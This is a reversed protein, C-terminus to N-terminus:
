GTRRRRTSARACCSSSGASWNTARSSSGGRRATCPRDPKAGLKATTDSTTIDLAARQFWATEALADVIATATAAADREGWIRQGIRYATDLLVQQRELAGRAAELEENRDVLTENAEKLERAAARAVFPFTIARRIRTLLPSRSPITIHYRAGRPLQELQVEAARYGLVKPMEINAGKTMLFFDRCVEYGEPLALEVECKSDSIQRFSPTICSFMQNGGGQRPTNIWRYFGMPTLLLRAIIFAFRVARQRFLTGGIHVLEDDSLCARLNRHITCLDDWDMRGNKSRLVPVTVSTGAVMQELTFGKRLVPKFLPHLAKSSVEQMPAIAATASAEM